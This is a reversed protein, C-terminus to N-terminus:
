GGIAKLCDADVVRVRPVYGRASVQSHSKKRVCDYASDFAYTLRADEGSANGEDIGDVIITGSDDSAIGSIDSLTYTGDVWGVDMMVAYIKSSTKGLYVIDNLNNIKLNKGGLDQSPMDSNLIRISGGTITTGSVSSIAYETTSGATDDWLHMYHTDDIRIVQHKAAASPSVAVRSGFTPVTGSISAAFDAQTADAQDSTCVVILSTTLACVSTHYLTTPEWFEVASGATIATGSLTAVVCYGDDGAGIDRYICAIKDTDVKCISVNSIDGTAIGQKSGATIALTSSNVTGAILNGDSNTADAYIVCFKNDDTSCIALADTNVAELTRDSGLTIYLTGIDVRGAVSLVDVGSQGEFAGVFINNGVGAIDPVDVPQSGYVFNSGVTLSGDSEQRVATFTPYNSNDADDYFVVFVNESIWAIATETDDGGIENDLEGGVVSALTPALSSFPIVGGATTMCAIDGAVCAETETTTFTQTPSIGSLASLVNAIDTSVDTDAPTGLKTDIASVESSVAITGSGPLRPSLKDLLIDAISDAVNPDELAKNTYDPVTLIINNGAM